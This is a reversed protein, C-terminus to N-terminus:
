LSLQREVFDLRDQGWFLQKDLLYSPAGFVHAAIAAATDAAYAARTHDNQAEVVFTSALGVETLLAALVTEDAINREQAWVAKLAAGLFDLAASTNVTDRVHVTILAALSPNAPFFQPEINLALGTVDRWRALEQLRYAQRQAPRQALPLGGSIAFVQGLDMVKLEIRANAKAAITRLKEHGLYTWPSIPMAFYTITKQM